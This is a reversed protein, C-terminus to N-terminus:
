DRKQTDGNDDREKRLEKYLYDIRIPREEFEPCGFVPAALGLKTSLEIFVDHRQCVAEDGPQISTKICNTCLCFRTQKNSLREDEWLDKQMWRDWVKTIM